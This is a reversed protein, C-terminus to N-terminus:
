EWVAATSSNAGVEVIWLRLQFIKPELPDFGVLEGPISDETNDLEYVGISLKEEETKASTVDQGNLWNEAVAKVDSESSFMIGSLHKSGLNPALDPSYPTDGSKGSLSKCCNKLKTLLIAITM